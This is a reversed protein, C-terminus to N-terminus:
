GAYDKNLLVKGCDRCRVKLTYRLSYHMNPQSYMDFDEFRHDTQHVSVRSHKCFLMKFYNMLKM